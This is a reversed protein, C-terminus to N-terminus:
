AEESTEDKQKNGKKHVEQKYKFKVRAKRM